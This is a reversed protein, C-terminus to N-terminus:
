RSIKGDSEVGGPLDLGAALGMTRDFLKSRM